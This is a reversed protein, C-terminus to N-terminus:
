QQTKLQLLLLIAIYQLASFHRPCPDEEVLLRRPIHRNQIPQALKAPDVTPAIRFADRPNLSEGLHAMLKPTWFPIEEPVSDVLKTRSPTADVVPHQIKEVPLLDDDQSATQTLFASDRVTVDIARGPAFDRELFFRASVGVPHLEFVIALL